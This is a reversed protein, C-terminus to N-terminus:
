QKPAQDGHFRFPKSLRYPFDQDKWGWVDDRWHVELPFESAAVLEELTAPLRADGNPRALPFVKGDRQEDYLVAYGSMAPDKPFYFMLVTKDTLKGYYENTKAFALYDLGQEVHKPEPFALGARLAADYYHRRYALSAPHSFGRNNKPVLDFL